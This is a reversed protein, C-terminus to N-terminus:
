INPIKEYTKKYNDFKKKKRPLCNELQCNERDRKLDIALIFALISKIRTKNRNEM